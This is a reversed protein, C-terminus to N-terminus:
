EDYPCNIGKFLVAGHDLQQLLGPELVAPDGVILAKPVHQGKIVLLFILIILCRLFFVAFCM